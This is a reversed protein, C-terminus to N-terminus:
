KRIPTLISKGESDTRVTVELYVNGPIIKAELVKGGIPAHLRHYDYPALFAHMFQGNVFENAYQSGALLKDITWPLGKITFDVISNNIDWFDDFTSDAASVHITLAMSSDPEQCSNEHSSTTSLFGAEQPFRTHTWTTTRRPMFHSYLLSEPKRSIRGYIQRIQGDMRIAEDVTTPPPYPPSSPMVPSQLSMVTEQDLVFYMKCLMQLCFNM